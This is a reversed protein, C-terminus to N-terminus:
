PSQDLHPLRPSSPLEGAHARSIGFVTVGHRANESVRAERSFSPEVQETEPSILHQDRKSEEKIQEQSMFPSTM